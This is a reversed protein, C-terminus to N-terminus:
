EYNIKEGEDISAKILIELKDCKSCTDNHPSHFSINFESVFINRYFHESVTSKEIDTCYQLYLTYMQQISLDPSLYRKDSHSRSYHSKYAPFKSIHLKVIDKDEDKIKPHNNHRDTWM